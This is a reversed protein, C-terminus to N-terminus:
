KRLRVGCGGRWFAGLLLLSLNLDCGGETGEELLWRMLGDEDVALTLDAGKQELQELLSQTM